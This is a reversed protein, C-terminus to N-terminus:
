RAACDQNENDPRAPDPPGLRPTPAIRFSSPEEDHLPARAAGWGPCGSQDSQSLMVGGPVVIKHRQGATGRTHSPSVSVTNGAM